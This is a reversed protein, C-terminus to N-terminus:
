SDEAMGVEHKNIWVLTAMPFHGSGLNYINVLNSVLHLCLIVCGGLLARSDAKKVRM